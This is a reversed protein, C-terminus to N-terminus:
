GDATAAFDTPLFYIPYVRLLQLTYHHGSFFLAVLFYARGLGDFSVVAPAFFTFFPFAAAAYHRRGLQPFRRVLLVQSFGNSTFPSIMAVLFAAFFFAPVFFFAALPEEFLFVVPLLFFFFPLNPPLFPM